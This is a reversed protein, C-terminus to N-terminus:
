QSLKVVVAAAGAAPMAVKAAAWSPPGFVPAAGSSGFPETPMGLPNFDMRGNGNLDQFVMIALQASGAPAACLPLKVIENSADLRFSLQPRRMFSAEELYVAVMVPGQAVRVQHIEAFRDCAPLEAAPLTQALGPQPASALGWLGLASVLSTAWLKRSTKRTPRENM